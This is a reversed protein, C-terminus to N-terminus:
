ESENCVAEIVNLVEDLVTVVLLVSAMFGLVMWAWALWGLAKVNCM